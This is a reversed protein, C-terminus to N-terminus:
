GEELSANWYSASVVDLFPIWEDYPALMGPKSKKPTRLLTMGAEEPTKNAKKSNCGLCSCSINGWCTKGGRSKPIVHDLNLKNRPFKIGCYQCTYQDRQYLSARSFRVKTRPVQNFAQLVMVRPIKLVYNPTRLTDDGLEAALEAWSAYDFMQFQKDLAKAAGAYLLGIAREVNALGVPTWNKNLILVKATQM